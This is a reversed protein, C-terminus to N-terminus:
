DLQESESAFIAKKRKFGYALSGGFLGGFLFFLILSMQALAVGLGMMGITGIVALMFFVIDFSRM